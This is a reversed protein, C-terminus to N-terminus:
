RIATNEEAWRSIYNDAQKLETLISRVDEITLGLKRAYLMLVVWDGDLLENNVVMVNEM